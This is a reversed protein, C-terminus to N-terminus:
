KLTSTDIPKGNADTIRFAFAWAGDTQTVKILVTNKGRQLRTSVSDEDISLERKKDLAHIREGNVWCALGDNSALKLIIDRDADSEIEAYGYVLVDQTRRYFTRLNVTGDSSLQDLRRWRVRRPGIEHVKDFGMDEGKSLLEEPFFAIDFGQHDADMIPTTLMWNLFFGKKKLEGQPDVGLNKLAEAASNVTERPLPSTLVAELHASVRAQQGEAGHATALAVVGRAADNGLTKDDLYRSLVRLGLFDGAKTIGDVATVRDAVTATPMEELVRQYMETAKKAHGRSLEGQALTLYGKLAIPVVPAAGSKVLNFYTQELTPQDLKGLGDLAVVKLTPNSGGAAKDLLSGAAQRDVRVLAHLIWPRTGADAKEYAQLLPTTARDRGLRELHRLALRRVRGARDGVSAILLDLREDSGVPCLGLLAHERLYDAPASELAREFIGAAAGAYGSEQLVDGLLLYKRYLRAVDIGGPNALTRHFIPIAERSGMRALGDLATLRVEPTGTNSYEVLTPVAQSVNKKALSYLFRPRMADEARNAAAILAELAGTGPIRELSLRATERVHEDSDYLLEAVARASSDGAIYGVLHVAERKVDKSENGFLKVLEACVAGREEVGGPRGAHHVILEIAALAAIRVNVDDHTMLGALASIAPAGIKPASFRAQLRVEDDGSTLRAVLTKVAEANEDARCVGRSLTVAVVMACLCFLSVRSLISKTNLTMM